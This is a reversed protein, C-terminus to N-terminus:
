SAQSKTIPIMHTLVFLNNEADLSLKAKLLNKHRYRNENEPRDVLMIV